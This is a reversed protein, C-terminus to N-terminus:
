KAAASTAERTLDKNLIQVDSRIGSLSIITHYVFSSKHKKISNTKLTSILDPRRQAFLDSYWIFCCVHTQEIASLPGSHCWRGGEGFSEGHDSIFIVIADKNKLEGIISNLRADIDLLCNDYRDIIDKKGFKDNESNYPIHGAGDEMLMFVHHHSQTLEKVINAYQQANAPSAYLRVKNDLIASITPTMYWKGQTNAGVILFNSYGHKELINIFSKHTPQRSSEDTISLLSSISSLTSTGKSYVFPMNVINSSGCISPMTDRKYGNLPFHDARVSEGIYLVVADPLTDSFQYSDHEAPNIIKGMASHEMLSIMPIMIYSTPHCDLFREMWQFPEKKNPSTIMYVPWFFFITLAM